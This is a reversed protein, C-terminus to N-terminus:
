ASQPLCLKGDDMRLPEISGFLKKFDDQSGKSTLDPAGFVYQFNLHVQSIRTIRELAIKSLLYIQEDDLNTAPAGLTKRLGDIQDRDKVNTPMYKRKISQRNLSDLKKLDLTAPSKHVKYIDFEDILRQM